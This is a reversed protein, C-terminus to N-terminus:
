FQGTSEVARERRRLLDIFRGFPVAVTDLQTARANHHVQVAFGNLARIQVLVGVGHFAVVVSQGHGQLIARASAVKSELFQAAVAAVNHDAVRPDLFQFLQLPQFVFCFVALNTVFFAGFIRLPALGSFTLLLAVVGAEVVFAALAVIGFAILSGPDLIVPNARAALPMLLCLVMPLFRRLTVRRNATLLRANIRKAPANLFTVENSITM